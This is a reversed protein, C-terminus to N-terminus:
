FINMDDTPNKINKLHKSSVHTYIQTTQINSHGLITQIYRIDIGDELLHTAFSHRLTHPTINKRIGAKLAMRKIIKQISATSYKGGSSGNILFNEPLYDNYYKKILSLIQNTLQVQRDKNGKSNRIQILMRKTDIDKIRLNILESIRLGCSYILVLITRHKLNQIQNFLLQVEEKSLVIPLKKDKIPRDIYYYQKERELFKEYYFKIANIHQNQASKSYGKKVLHELYVLLEEKSLNETNQLNFYIFFNKLCALYTSVTSPSYRRIILRQQIEQLQKM